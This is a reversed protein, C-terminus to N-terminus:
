KEVKVELKINSEPGVKAVALPKPAALKNNADPGPKPVALPKPAALKNSADPGPKPVVVRKPETLLNGAAARPRKPAPSAPRPAAFQTLNLLLLAAGTKVCSHQVKHIYAHMYTHISTDRFASGHVARTCGQVTCSFAYAETNRVRALGGQAQLLLL